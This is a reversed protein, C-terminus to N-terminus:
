PKVLLEELQKFSYVKAMNLAIALDHELLAGKSQKYDPLFLVINADMIAKICKKMAANWTTNWDNVIELPNLAEHGYDEIQKQAAGFKMTCSARDEGSIKGAIYIKKM